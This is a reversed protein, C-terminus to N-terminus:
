GLMFFWRIKPPTHTNHVIKSCWKTMMTGGGNGETTTMLPDVMLNERVFEPTGSTVARSMSPM